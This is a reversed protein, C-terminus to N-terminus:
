SFYKRKRACKRLFLIRNDGRSSPSALSSSSSSSSSSEVQKSPLFRKLSRAAKVPGSYSYFSGTAIGIAEEEEAAQLDEEEEEEEEQEEFESFESTFDGFEGSVTSFM